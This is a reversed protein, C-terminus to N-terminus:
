YINELVGRLCPAVILTHEVLLCDLSCDSLYGGMGQNALVPNIKERTAVAVGHRVRISVDNEVFDECIANVDEADQV